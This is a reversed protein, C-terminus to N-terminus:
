CIVLHIQTDCRVCTGTSSQEVNGGVRDFLDLGASPLFSPRIDWICSAGSHLPKRWQCPRLRLQWHLGGEPGVGQKYTISLRPLLGVRRSWRWLLPLGAAKQSICDKTLSLRMPFHLSCRQSCTVSHWMPTVDRLTLMAKGDKREM